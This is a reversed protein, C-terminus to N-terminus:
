KAGFCVLGRQTIKAKQKAFVQKVTRARARRSPFQTIGLSSLYKGTNTGQAKGKLLSMFEKRKLLGLYSFVVAVHNRLLVRCSCFACKNLVDIDTLPQWALLYEAYLAISFFTVALKGVNM